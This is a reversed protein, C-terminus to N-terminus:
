SMFRLWNIFREIQKILGEDKVQVKYNKEKAKMKHLIIEEIDVLCVEEGLSVKEDEYFWKREGISM